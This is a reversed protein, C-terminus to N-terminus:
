KIKLILPNSREGREREGRVERRQLAEREPALRREKNKHRLM